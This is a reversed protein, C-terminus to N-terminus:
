SELNVGLHEAVRRILAEVDKAGLASATLAAEFRMLAVRVREGYGATRAARVYVRYGPGTPDDALRVAIQAHEPDDHRHAPDVLIAALVADGIARLAPGYTDACGTPIGERLRTEVIRQRSAQYDLELAAPLAAPDTVQGFGLPEDFVRMIRDDRGRRILDEMARHVDATSTDYARGLVAAGEDIVLFHGPAHALPAPQELADFRTLRDDETLAGLMVATRGTAAKFVPRDPGTTPTVIILIGTTDYLGAARLVRLDTNSGIHLANHSLTNTPLDHDTALQAAGARGRAVAIIQATRHPGVLDALHQPLQYGVRYIEHRTHRQKQSM